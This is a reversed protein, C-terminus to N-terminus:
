KTFRREIDRGYLKTGVRNIFEEKENRYVYRGCWDCLNKSQKSTIVVRRGCYKCTYKVKDLEDTMRKHQKITLKEM